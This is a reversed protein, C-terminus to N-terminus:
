GPYANLQRMRAVIRDIRRGQNRWTVRDNAPAKVTFHHLAVVAWHEDFVPSGSSGLDTDTWYQIKDPEVARVLNHQFAVKKPQGYPHQIIYVRDDVKPMQAGTIPLIPFEDPIPGNTQIVAWDEDHEGIVSGPDCSLQTMQRPEGREDSEYNFWAQVAIARRDGDNWDFLVHHNTLLHKPGIRFATGSGDEPFRTVLRCVSRARDLGVALFSVDVFTPQAAVIVAEAHGDDSFNKWEVAAPQAAAGSPAVLTRGARLEEIPQRLGSQVDIVKDLLKDVASQGAAVRFVSRWTSSPQSSWSVRHAPLGVDEVIEEIESQRYITELLRLTTQVEPATWEVPFDYLKTM